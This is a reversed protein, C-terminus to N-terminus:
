ADVSVVAAKPGVKVPMAPVAEAMLDRRLKTLKEMVREPDDMWKNSALVWRMFTHIKLDDVDYLVPRSLNYDYKDFVM